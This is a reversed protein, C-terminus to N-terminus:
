KSNGSYLMDVLASIFKDREDKSCIDYGLIEKSVSRSLFAVQVTSTLTFALLNKEEDKMDDGIAMMFGKKTNGSNNNPSYHSLDGLISIRSVAPNELLFDSVQIAWSILREKNSSYEKKQPQFSSVVYSILQQVCIEILKDKTQFHYNILGIGVNAKDAINRTTIEDVNGNSNEILEITASIINQKIEETTKKM